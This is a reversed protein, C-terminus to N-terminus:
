ALLNIAKEENVEQTVDLTREDNAGLFSVGTRVVDMAHAKPSLAMLASQLEKSLARLSREQKTFTALQSATPLEGHWLLYAVEEFSCKEALDQVKYGRYVLSNIEPIVKAISTEDVVVGELGKKVNIQHSM